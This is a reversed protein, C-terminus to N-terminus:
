EILWILLKPVCCAAVVLRQIGYLSARLTIDEGPEAVNDAPM